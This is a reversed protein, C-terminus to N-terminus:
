SAQTEDPNQKFYSSLSGHPDLDVLLTRYGCSSLLGGLTVVTTTKGVGGKQNSVSWIKM